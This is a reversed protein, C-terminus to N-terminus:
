TSYPYDSSLNPADGTHQQIPNQHSYPNNKPPVNYLQPNNTTEPSILNQAINSPEQNQIPNQQSSPIGENSIPNQQPFSIGENPIPNQQSSPIGDNPIPNQQPFGFGENPIPNQQPFSIGENPIPNQQPFGIGENPIPNQQPSTIGGNQIPNQPINQTSVTNQHIPYNSNYNAIYNNNNNSNIPITMNNPQPFQNLFGNPPIYNNGQILNQSDGIYKPSPGYKNTTQESDASIFIILIIEGIIFIFCSMPNLIFFGPLRTSIYFLACRGSRGRDHLRRVILSILPIYTLISYGLLSLSLIYYNKKIKNNESSYIHSNNKEFYISGIIHFGIIIIIVPTYYYFFESRRSRGYYKCCNKFVLKFSQLCNIHPITKM